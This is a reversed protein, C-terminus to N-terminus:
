NGNREKKQKERQLPLSDRSDKSDGSMVLKAEAKGSKTLKDMLDNIKADIVPNEWFMHAKRDICKIENNMADANMSKQFNFPESHVDIKLLAELSDPHKRYEVGELEVTRTTWIRKSDKNTYALGFLYIHDADFCFKAEGCLADRLEDFRFVPGSSEWDVFLGAFETGDIDMLDFITDFNTRLIKFNCLREMRSQGGVEMFRPPVTSTEVLDMRSEEEKRDFYGEFNNELASALVTDKRVCTRFIDVISESHCQNLTSKRGYYKRLENMKKLLSAITGDTPGDYLQFSIDIFNFILELKDKVNFVNRIIDTLDLDYDFMTQVIEIIQPNERINILGNNTLQRVETDSLEKRYKRFSAFFPEFDPTQLNEVEQEEESSSAFYNTIVMKSMPGMKGAMATTPHIFHSSTSFSTTSETGAVMITNGM